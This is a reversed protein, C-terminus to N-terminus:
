KKHMDYGEKWCKDCVVENCSPCGMRSTNCNEKKEKSTLSTDQKRYCMSCRSNRNRIKIREATCSSTQTKIGDSHHIVVQTKPKHHIGNTMKELCFYCLKCDCPILPARRMWLPKKETHDEWDQRIAYNLLDLGLEIQFKRRGGNKTLFRCWRKPGINSKALVCVIVFLVHVVRDLVWFFLRLYWRNTRISTTYDSSDRDNRDVANFHLAYDKQAAPAQLTCRQKKGRVHRKVTLNSSAGINNTHVFTVQKKDKWTSCQIWYTKANSMKMEVAAERFWGRHVEKLAGKSLKNFPLDLKSRAKKETAVQTGCFRWGYQEFLTKALMISTYWNDTYLIRGRSSNLNADEILRKVVATATNYSPDSSNELGVYIEFGLLVATYACCVAFVKIGHKIPKKPNYQIFAIARGKYKVISEDITVREGPIWASRMGCMLKDLIWQVKYLPNYKSHGVPHKDRNNSFHIFRRMFEFADRTMSNQVYPMSLGFPAAMWMCRINRRDGFHAGGIILIAIWAIIFGATINYKVPENDARHRAKEPPKEKKKLFIPVLFSTKTAKGDRDSRQQEVVWEKYAYIDTMKAIFSILNLGFIAFFLQALSETSRAIEILKNSPGCKGGGSPGTYKDNFSPEWSRNNETSLEIWPDHVPHVPELKKMMDNQQQKSFIEDISRISFARDIFNCFKSHTVIKTQAIADALSNHANDIDSNFLYHYVAGLELSELKSKAKNLPCSKYKQIVALPDLFFKVQSPISLSSHPSQTIRWLWKLDCTAGNYAILVCYEEPKMNEQLFLCFDSWVQNIRNANKIIPSNSNLGHVQTCHPDWISGEPPKIYKNFTSPEVAFTMKKKEQTSIRFLQASIQIIGCYEGGTEMDFSCFVARGSTIHHHAISKGRPIPRGDISEDNDDEDNVSDNKLTNEDATSSEIINQTPDKVDDPNSFDNIGASADNDVDNRVVDAIPILGFLDGDESSVTNEDNDESDSGSASLDRDELLHSLYPADSAMM